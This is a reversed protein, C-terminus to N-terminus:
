VDRELWERAKSAESIYVRLIALLDKMLLTRVVVDLLGDVALVDHTEETLLEM